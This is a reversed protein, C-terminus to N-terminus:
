EMKLAKLFHILLIGDRRIEDMLANVDDRLQIQKIQTAYNAQKTLYDNTVNAVTNASDLLANTVELIKGM